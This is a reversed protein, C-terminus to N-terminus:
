TRPFHYSVVSYAAQAATFLILLGAVLLSIIKWPDKLYERKLTATWTRWKQEYHENLQKSIDSMYNKNTDFVMEKRLNNILTAVDEDSGLHHSIIGKVVLHEVDKSSDILGDMFSIYSTIHRGCDPYCQEFAMLNLFTSRTSGHILLPPILLKGKKFEIETFKPSDKKEFKIGTGRLRTVSHVSVTRHEEEKVSGLLINPELSLHVINLLHLHDDFPFIKLSIGPIVPNVFNLVLDVITQKSVRSDWFVSYIKFLVSFPLQNELMLLDRRIFPIFGRQYLVYLPNKNEGCDKWDHASNHLLELIFCADLLLMKLLQKKYFGELMPKDFCPKAEDLLKVIMDGEELDHLSKNKRGLVLQLLHKKHMEIEKLGAHQKHLHYYPGISVLRPTYPDTQELDRLRSPVKFINPQGADYAELGDLEKQVNKEWGEIEEKVTRQPQSKNVTESCHKRKKPPRKNSGSDVEAM